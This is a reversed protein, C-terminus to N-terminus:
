EHEREMERKNEADTLASQMAVVHQCYERVFTKDHSIIIIGCDLGKLYEGLKKRNKFDLNATPEDLILYKPKMALIAALVLRQKEGHSLSFPFSDVHHTLGFYALYEQSRAAIEEESLNMNRLGIEMEEQVTASFIQKAPNQMVYGIKMGREALTNDVINAGDLLIEGENPKLVGMILNALTTKGAGNGGLLATIKDSPFEASFRDLVKKDTNKYSFSLNKICLGM